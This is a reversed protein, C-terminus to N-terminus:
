RGTGEKGDDTKLQGLIYFACGGLAISVVLYVGMMATRPVADDILPRAFGLAFVALAVANVTTAGWKVRENHVALDDRRRM